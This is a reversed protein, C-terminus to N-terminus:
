EFKYIKKDCRIEVIGDLNITRYDMKHVNFTVLLDPHSSNTPGKNCVRGNVKHVARDHKGVFTATFFRGSLSNIVGRAYERKVNIVEM